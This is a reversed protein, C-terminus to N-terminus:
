RERDDPKGILPQRLTTIIGDQAPVALGRHTLFAHALRRIHSGGADVREALPADPHLVGEIQERKLGLVEAMVPDSGSDSLLFYATSPNQQGDRHFRGTCQRHVAPTWDIEGFVGTRCVEQMGDTGLGARLSMIMLQSRGRCFDALAAEKQTPSESGTYLVPKYSALAELWIHYVARHWGFLVIPEGSDLLMKVFEAVYPAKAIGTAQRLLADFDGAARMKQGRFQEGHALVIRALVVADGGLEDLAKRDADIHHVVKTLAPLERGVEARSRQLMLGERRLYNGFLKADRLRSKEGPEATCWERDFEDKEGLAGPSLVDIVNFIESGMNHFPTASLGLRRSAGGAVHVAANHIATGPHRLAQCEDFVCYRIVPRLVEAWGRLKHYSSIIVDPFPLPTRTRRSGPPRALDYPQTTRLVHARLQPVFRSLQHVWHGPLHAPCVVLVPLNEPRVMPVIASVTKGTGLDDALLFGHKVELLQDVFVQYQRPPLALAIEPPPVHGALLEAVGREMTCHEDALRTMVDPRDVEMPYRLLFWRLDRTNEPTASIHILDAAQQPARAFVRKLRARVFPEAAVVWHRGAYAVKGYLVTM